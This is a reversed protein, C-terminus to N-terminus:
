LCNRANELMRERETDVNSLTLIEHIWLEPDMPLLLGNERHRVIPRYVDHDAYIGVSGAQTIDFFKTYSRANNFESNLLPALGIVRGPRNVLAKYNEWGMPHLVHVRSINAFMKKVAANGIIEFCLSSDTNLVSKVIPLLWKIENLHSSSGHYFVSKLEHSFMYPSKAELLKPQWQQYKNALWSTSVWLKANQNQLWTRYRLAYRYLKWRYLISLGQHSNADLLDDDMFYILQDIQGRYREVWRKWEESLYRVFIISVGMEPVLLPPQECCDFHLVELNQLMPKIFFDTSPNRGDQIVWFQDVM